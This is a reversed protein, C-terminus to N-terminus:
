NCLVGGKKLAYVLSAKLQWYDATAAIPRVIIILSFAPKKKFQAQQAFNEVPNERLISLLAERLRRRVKNRIVANGVKRNVVIGVQVTEQNLPLWKIGFEKVYVARGKRMRRFARDGKLSEIM